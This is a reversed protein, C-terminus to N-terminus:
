RARLQWDDGGGATPDTCADVFTLRRQPASLTSLRSRAYSRGSYISPHRPGGSSRRRRPLEDGDRPSRSPSRDPSRDPLDHHRLDVPSCPSGVDASDASSSASSSGGGRDPRFTLDARACADLARRADGATAVAAGAVAALRMGTCADVAGHRAAASGAVAGRLRM